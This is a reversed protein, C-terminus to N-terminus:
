RETHVGEMCMYTAAEGLGQCHLSPLRGTIVQKNTALCTHSSWETIENKLFKTMKASDSHHQQSSLILVQTVNCM